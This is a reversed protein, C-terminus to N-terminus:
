EDKEARNREELLGKIESMLTILRYVGGGLVKVYILTLVIATAGVAGVQILVKGAIDEM